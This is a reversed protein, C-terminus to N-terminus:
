TRSRKNAEILRNIGRRAWSPTKSSYFWTLTWIFISVIALLKSPHTKPIQEAIMALWWAGMVGIAGWLAGTIFNINRSQKKVM